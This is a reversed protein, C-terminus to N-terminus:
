CSVVSHSASFSKAQGFLTFMQIWDGLAAATRTVQVGRGEGTMQMISSDLRVEISSILPLVRPEVIFRLSGLPPVMQLSVDGSYVGGSVV